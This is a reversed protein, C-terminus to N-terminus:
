LSHYYEVIAVLDSAQRIKIGKSDIFEEIQKRNEKFLKLIANENPNVKEYKLNKNLVYVKTLDKFEGAKNNYRSSQWGSSNPDSFTKSHEIIVKDSKPDVAEYFFINKKNDNFKEAEIKLFLYSKTGNNDYLIFKSIDKTTLAMHDNLGIGIKLFLTNNFLNYVLEQNDKFEGDDKYVTGKTWGELFFPSGKVDGQSMFLGDGMSSTGQGNRIQSWSNSINFLLVVLLFIKRM